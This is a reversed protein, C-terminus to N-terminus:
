KQLKFFTYFDTYKLTIFHNFDKNFKDKKHPEPNQFKAWVFSLFREKWTEIMFMAEKNTANNAILATYFGELFENQAPEYDTWYFPSNYKTNYSVDTNVTNYTRACFDTQAQSRHPDGSPKIENYYMM